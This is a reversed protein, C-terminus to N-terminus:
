SCACSAEAVSATIAFTFTLPHEAAYEHENLCDRAMLQGDTGISRHCHREAVRRQSRAAGVRQVFGGGGDNHIGRAVKAGAKDSQQMHKPARKDRRTNSNLECRAGDHIEKEQSAM